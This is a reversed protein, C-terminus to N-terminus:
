EASAYEFTATETLVVYGTQEVLQVTAWKNNARNTPNYQAALQTHYEMRADEVNTFNTSTHGIAGDTRQQFNTYVFYIM